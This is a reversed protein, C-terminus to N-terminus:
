DLGVCRGSNWQGLCLWRGRNECAHNDHLVRGGASGEGGRGGQRRGEGVFCGVAELLCRKQLLVERQMDDERLALRSM